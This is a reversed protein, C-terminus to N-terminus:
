IHFSHSNLYLGTNIYVPDQLLESIVQPYYERFRYMQDWPITERYQNLKYQLEAEVDAIFNRTSTLIVKASKYGHYFAFRDKLNASIGFKVNDGFNVLYFYSEDNSDGNNKFFSRKSEIIAQMRQYETLTKFGRAENWVKELYYYEPNNHIMGFGGGEDMFKAYEPYEDLHSHVYGFGDEGNRLKRIFEKYYPYDELHYLRGNSSCEHSCYHRTSDTWNHSGGYGYLISNFKLRSDCEPHDCIPRLETDNIHLVLLDFYEQSTLGTFLRFFYDVNGKGSVYGGDKLTVYNSDSYLNDELVLEKPIIYWFKNSFEDREIINNYNYRRFLSILVEESLRTIIKSM